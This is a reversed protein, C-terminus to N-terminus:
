RALPGAAPMFSRAGLAMAPTSAGTSVVRTRGKPLTTGTNSARFARAARRPVPKGLWRLSRPCRQCDVPSFGALVTATFVASIATVVKKSSPM